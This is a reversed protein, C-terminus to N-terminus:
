DKKTTNESENDNDTDLSSSKKGRGFLRAISGRFFVFVGVIGAIITQLILSGSGPDIYAFLSAFSINMDPCVIFAM